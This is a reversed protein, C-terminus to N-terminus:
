NFVGEKTAHERIANPDGIVNFVELLAANILECLQQHNEYEWDAGIVTYGEVTTELIKNTMYASLEIPGDFQKVYYGGEVHIVLASSEPIISINEEVERIDNIDEFPFDTDELVNYFKYDNLM